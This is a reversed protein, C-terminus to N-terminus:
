QNKKVSIKKLPFLNVEVHFSFCFGFFHACLLITQLQRTCM